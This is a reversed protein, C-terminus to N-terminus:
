FLITAFTGVQEFGVRRYAALARHNYDNVYLSAVPAYRRSLEVVAAMCAAARGQGRYAPNMWVGQIQVADASVNGLEAKFVVEGAANRCLVSHGREILSKVRQRYHAGGGALPSYGVEEEFMAVCAPILAELDEATSFRLDPDPAVAPTGRLEMLPQDPRIDFPRASSHQLTSWIGLVGEAPGFISSVHRNAAALFGGMQAGRGADLGVPVVNVGAWCAGALAGGDDFYGLIRAGSPTPGATGASELHAAMFVNAVPDPRVLSWLAATDADTLPRIHEGTGAGAASSAPAGPAPGRQSASTLWPAVRSLM